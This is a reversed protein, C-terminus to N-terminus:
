STLFLLAPPLYLWINVVDEEEKARQKTLAELPKPIWITTFWKVPTFWPFTCICTNKHVIYTGLKLALQRYAILYQDAAQLKLTWLKTGAQLLFWRTLSQIKTRWTNVHVLRINCVASRTLALHKHFVSKM